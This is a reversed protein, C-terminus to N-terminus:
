VNLGAHITQEALHGEFFLDPLEDLVVIGAVGRRRQRGLGLLASHGGYVRLGGIMHIDHLQSGRAPKTRHEVGDARLARASILMESYVLATQVDRQEKARINYVTEAGDIWHGQAQGRAEIRLEDDGERV